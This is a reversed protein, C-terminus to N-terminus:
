DWPEPDGHEARHLHGQRMKGYRTTSFGVGEVVEPPGAIGHEHNVQTALMTGPVLDAEKGDLQATFHGRFLLWYERFDHYHYELPRSPSFHFVAVINVDHWHGAVRMVECAYTQTVTKASTLKVGDDPIELWDRRKLTVRGASSEATVEGTLVIVMERPASKSLTRVGGTADSHDLSFAEFDDIEVWDEKDALDSRRYIPM